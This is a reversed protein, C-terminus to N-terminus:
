VFLVAFFLYSLRNQFFRRNLAGKLPAEELWRSHRHDRVKINEYEELLERFHTFNTGQYIESKKLRIIEERLKEDTYNAPHRGSNGHIVASLSYFSTVRQETIKEMPIALM